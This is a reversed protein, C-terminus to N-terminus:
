FKCSIHRCGWCASHLTVVKYKYTKTLSIFFSLSESGRSSKENADEAELANCTGRWTPSGVVPSAVV